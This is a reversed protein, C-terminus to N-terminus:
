ISKVMRFFRQGPEIFPSTLLFCKERAPLLPLERADLGKQDHQTVAISLEHTTKM